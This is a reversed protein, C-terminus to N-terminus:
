VYYFSTFSLLPAARQSNLARTSYFELETLGHQAREQQQEHGEHRGVTHDDERGRAVRAIPLQRGERAPAVWGVEWAAAAVAASGATAGGAHRAARARAAIPLSAKPERLATADAAGRAVIRRLVRVAVGRAGVRHLRQEVGRSLARHVAGGRGARCRVRVPVVRPAGGAVGGDVVRTAHRAAREAVPWAVGGEPGGRPRAHSVQTGDHQRGARRRRRPRSAGHDLDAPRQAEVVAATTLPPHRM